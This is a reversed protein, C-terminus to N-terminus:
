RPFRGSLEEIIADRIAQSDLGFVGVHGIPNNDYIVSGTPLQSTDVAFYKEGPRLVPQLGKGIPNSLSDRFSVGTGNDTLQLDTRSGGRFIM